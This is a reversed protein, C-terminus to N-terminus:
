AKVKEMAEKKKMAEHESLFVTKGIDESKVIYLGTNGAARLWWEIKENEEHYIIEYIKAEVIEYDDSEEYKKYYRKRIIYVKDEPKCPPKFLMGAKELEKYYLIETVWEKLTRGEYEIENMSKDVVKEAIAKIDIKM